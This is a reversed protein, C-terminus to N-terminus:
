WRVILALHLSGLHGLLGESITDGGVLFYKSCTCAILSEADKSGIFLEGGSKAGSNHERLAVHSGTTKARFTRLKYSAFSNIFYLKNRSIFDFLIQTSFPGCELLLGLLPSMLRAFQASLTAFAFVVHETAQPSESYM